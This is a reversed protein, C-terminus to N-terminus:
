IPARWPPSIATLPFQRVKMWLPGAFPVQVEPLEVILGHKLLAALTEKAMIPSHNGCGIQDLARRQAASRGPHRSELDDKMM